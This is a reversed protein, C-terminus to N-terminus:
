EITNTINSLSFDDNILCLFYTKAYAPHATRRVDSHVYFGAFTALITLSYRYIVLASESLTVQRNQM